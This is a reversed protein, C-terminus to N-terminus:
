IAELYKEKESRQDLRLIGLSAEWPFIAYGFGAQKVIEIQSQIEPL